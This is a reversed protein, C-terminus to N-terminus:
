AVGGDKLSTKSIIKIDPFCSVLTDIYSENFSKLEVRSGNPFSVVYNDVSEEPSYSVQLKRIAARYISSVKTKIEDADFLPNFNLIFEYKSYPKVDVVGDVKLFETCLPVSAPYNLKCIYTAYQQFICTTSLIPLLQGDRLLKRRDHPIQKSDGWAECNNNEGTDMGCVPCSEHRWEILPPKTFNFM